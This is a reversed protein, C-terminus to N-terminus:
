KKKIWYRIIAIALVVVGLDVCIDAFNFIPLNMKPLVNIYDIVYGRVIRDILNGIGGGLILSLSALIQIDLQEKRSIVFNIILMIVIVNLLILLIRSSIGIGFIIGLAIGNNQMYTINLVNNILVTDTNGWYAAVCFKIVQDIVVLIGVVIIIWLYKKIKMNQLGTKM